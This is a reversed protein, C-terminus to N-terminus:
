LPVTAFHVKIGKLGVSALFSDEGLPAKGCWVRVGRLGVTELFSPKKNGAELIQRAEAHLNEEAFAAAAFVTNLRELVSVGEKAPEPDMGVMQLATEREGEEAFAVASFWKELRDSWWSM